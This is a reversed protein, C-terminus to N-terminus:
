AYKGETTGSFAVQGDPTLLIVRHFTWYVDDSPQLLCTIASINMTEMAARNVKCISLASAADLGNTIKPLM